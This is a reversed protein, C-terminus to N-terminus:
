PNNETHRATPNRPLWDATASFQPLIMKPYVRIKASVVWIQLHRLQQEVSACAHKARELLVYLVERRLVSWELRHEFQM